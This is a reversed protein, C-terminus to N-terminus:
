TSLMEVASLHRAGAPRAVAIERADVAVVVVAATAIVTTVRIVAVPTGVALVLARVLALVCAQALAWARSLGLVLTPAFLRMLAWALMLACVSAVPMATTAYSLACGLSIATRSSAHSTPHSLACFSRLKSSRSCTETARTLEWDSPSVPTPKRARCVHVLPERVETVIAGLELAATLLLSDSSSQLVRGVMTLWTMMPAYILFAM